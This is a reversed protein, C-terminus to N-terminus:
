HIHEHTFLHDQCYEYNGNCKSCYRFELEPNTIDTRGCVACKHKAGDSYINQQRRSAKVQKKFKQKRHIQGPSHAKYNRSSFYYLLFNLVSVVAAIANAKYSAGYISNAYSPLVGQLVTWGLALVDVLALWKAKVPLIFFLLFETEPFLAAFALFLSLYLYQANLAYSQGMIFYVLLAALVNFLIGSILYLNFRFAGWVAELSQGIMYYLYLAFIIFILSTSPPDMLFTFIRWVQGQMIAGANLQLYQEYFGPALFKLAFGIVQLVVMYQMINSIAYRGIKKELKSIWDM